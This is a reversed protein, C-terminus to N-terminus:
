LPDPSETGMGQVPLSPTETFIPSLCLFILSASVHLTWVAWVGSGPWATTFLSHVIRPSKNGGGDRRFAARRPRGGLLCKCLLLSFYELLLTQRSTVNNPSLSSSGRLNLFM